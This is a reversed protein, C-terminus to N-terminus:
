RTIIDELYMQAVKDDTYDAVTHFGNQRIREADSLELESIRKLVRTLEEANGQECLYGNEGDEVIGDVGGFRSAVTICGNAMAELYVLGFVENESIMVFCDAERLKQQVEDRPVRGCFSVKDQIGIENVLKVLEDKATGDGVITFHFNGKPFAQTLAKLTADVRKYAILRGVFIVKLVGDTKWEHKDCKVDAYAAPVGSFCVGTKKPDLFPYMGVMKDRTSKSRFFLCDLDKIYKMYRESFHQPLEGHFVFGKKASYYAGLDNVLRLQPELWHGTIVDPKFDLSSLYEKINEAQKDYQTNLYGIHPILKFIPLRLIDVGDQKRKLIRRSSISPISLNQRKKLMSYVFKPLKYLILPFKNENHVVVVRHGATAWEKAFYFVVDTSDDIDDPQKMCSTLLLINM